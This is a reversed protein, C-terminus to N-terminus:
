FWRFPISWEAISQLVQMQTLGPNSWAFVFAASMQVCVFVVLMMALVDGVRKSM